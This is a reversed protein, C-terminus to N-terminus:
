QKRIRNKVFGLRRLLRLTIGGIFNSSNLEDLVHWCILIFLIARNKALNYELEIVAYRRCRQFLFIMLLITAFEGNM